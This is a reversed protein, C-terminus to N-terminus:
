IPVRTSLQIVSSDPLCFYEAANGARASMTVFLRERWPAMGQGPTPVARLRSLFYTVDAADEDIQLGQHKNCLQLAKPVDPINMFGFKLTVRWFGNGLAQLTARESMGVWPEEVFVLHLVINRQHLVKNHRLNSALSQPVRNPTAVLYIATGAVRPYSKGALEAVFAKLSLDQDPSNELILARGRRWTSMLTFLAAGLALPLWGGDPLKLICGGVMLVDLALFFLTIAAGPVPGLKWHRSLVFFALLSTIMMTLTVAIGYAGALASSSGFMEVVIIVGIMLTFNVGPMYIQGAERVSTYRVAMRPLFGLQIAQKTMSYAGTIVAQSAIIAALTALVLAPIMLLKPFLRFFPNDVAEPQALLLAGQGMYNLALGPLVVASWAYQIPRRGFHGLDAYLAEAGTLALVIASMAAFLHWGRAVLFQWAHLPNLAALIMPERVIQAIGTAGLVLFWLLIVPGFTKGVKGTGYRQIMFLGVLIVLSAAVVYRGLSPAVVELGEMAGVVSIAPTIVGDGYFLTAGCVGILLLAGRLRRNRATRSALSALALIGGEGNHDARLILLVYKLTVVLVLAWLIVSVAGIINPADRPIHALPGFVEKITYLPSTGIDGYVVGLAGLTLTATGSKRVTGALNSQRDPRAPFIADSM